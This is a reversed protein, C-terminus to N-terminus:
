VFYFPELNLLNADDWVYWCYDYMGKTGEKVFTPRESLVIISTPKNENWFKKRGKSAMYTLKQLMITCSSESRAKTVFEKTLSFPPNTIVIDSEFGNTLYDVGETLEAWASGEPMHKYIARAEGRCPECYTFKNSPYGIVSFLSEIAEQPTPYYEYKPTVYGKAM